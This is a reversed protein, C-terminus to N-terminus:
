EALDCRVTVRYSGGITCTFLTLAWDGSEMQEIATPNLQEIEAVVYNFVNGDVDTFTIEDGANLYKLNGFHSEYNHAAIILNNKYASGTYRCPSIRLNPYSWESMVPLSLELSPIDIRGIYTNGDIEVTPMEMDPNTVYLPVEAEEPQPPEEAADPTAEPEETVTPTPLQQLIESSTEAARHNDWINYGVLGLSILLLLLGVAILGTGAKSIKSKRNKM